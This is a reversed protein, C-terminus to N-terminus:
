KVRLNVSSIDQLLEYDNGIYHTYFNLMCLLYLHAFIVFICIVWSELLWWLVIGVAIYMIFNLVM